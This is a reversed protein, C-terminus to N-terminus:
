ILGIKDNAGAKKLLSGTVCFFARLFQKSFPAPTKETFIQLVFSVSDFSNVKTM